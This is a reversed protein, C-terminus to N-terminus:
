NAQSSGSAPVNLIIDRSATYSLLARARETLMDPDLRESDFLSLRHRVSAIETQLVASQSALVDIDALMQKNNEIGYNGGIVSFGLYTQFALLVATISLQKFLSPKKLRTPM